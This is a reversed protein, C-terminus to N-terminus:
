IREFRALRKTRHHEVCRFGAQSMKQWLAAEDGVGPYFHYEMGVTRCRRLAADPAALLAEVEAGECDLKLFDIATLGLENFLQELPVVEITEVKGTAMAATPSRDKYMCANKSDAGISIQRREAAKGIGRQLCQVRNQLQNIAITQQLRAFSRGVPEIATVRKAGAEQLAYLTFAGINAGIDVVVECGTPLRYSRLCFVDWVTEVDGTEQLELRYGKRGVLEFPPTFAARGSFIQTLRWWNRFLRAATAVSPATALAKKWYAGRSLNREIRAMCPVLNPSRRAAAM